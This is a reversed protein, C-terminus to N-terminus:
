ATAAGGALLLHLPLWWGMRMTAPALASLTALGVFMAAIGISAATVRRDATRRALLSRGSSMPEVNVIMPASDRAGQVSAAHAAEGACAECCADGCTVATVPERETRPTAM